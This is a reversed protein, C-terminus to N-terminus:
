WFCSHPRNVAYLWLPLARPAPCLNTYLAHSLVWGYPPRPTYWYRPGAGSWNLWLAEPERGKWILGEKPLTYPCTLSSSLSMSKLIAWMSTRFPVGQKRHSLHPLLTLSWDEATLLIPKSASLLPKWNAFM